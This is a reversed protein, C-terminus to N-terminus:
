FFWRSKLNFILHFLNVEDASAESWWWLALRASPEDRNTPHRWTLPATFDQLVQQLLVNHLALSSGHNSGRWVSQRAKQPPNQTADHTWVKSFKFSYIVHKTRLRQSTANRLLFFFFFFSRQLVAERPTWQRRGWTHTWSVAHQKQQKLHADYVCEAAM